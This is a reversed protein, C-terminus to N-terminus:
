KNTNKGKPPKNETLTYDVEIEPKAELLAKIFEDQWETKVSIVFFNEGQHVTLKNTQIDMTLSTFENISYVSKIVGFQTTLSKKDVLYRARILISVVIVICFVCVALLLPYKLVDMIGYIGYNVIRVITVAIGAACLALCVICLAVILKSLKLPFAKTKAPDLKKM